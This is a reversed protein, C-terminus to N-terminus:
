KRLFKVYIKKGMWYLFSVFIVIPLLSPIGVIVFNISADIFNQAQKKLQNLSQKVVQMPRWDDSIPTIEADESVNVTITSMSTQNELFRLKGEIREAEGRVRSLERSVALIDDLDGPKNLLESLSTEERKKNNLQAKLDVYRESVDQGSTSESVVQTAVLKIEKLIEQFNDVPVKIVVTGNRSGRRYESFSTSFIEGKNRDVIVRIDEIARETEEVKLTLYGDKIVKKEDQISSAIPSDSRLSRGSMQGDEADMESVEMAGGFDGKMKNVAMMPEISGIQKKLGNKQYEGSGNLIVQFAIFSVAVVLFLGLLKLFMLAKKNETKKLM